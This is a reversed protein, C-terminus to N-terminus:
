DGEPRILDIAIGDIEGEYTEYGKPSAWYGMVIMPGGKQRSGVMTFEVVTPAGNWTSPIKMVLVKAGRVDEETKEIAGTIAVGQSKYYAIYSDLLADLGSVPTGQIWMLVEDKPARLEIGNTIASMSWSTPLHIPFAPGAHRFTYTKFQAAAFHPPIAMVSLLSLGGVVSARRTLM